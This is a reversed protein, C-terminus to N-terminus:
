RRDRRPNQIIRGTIGGGSGSATLAIASPAADGAGYLPSVWYEVVEGQRARRAVENEFRAMSSRNTRRDLAVMEQTNRARGGLQRAILHARDQMYLNGNGLWGAPDVSNNVRQGTGLMSSTITANAGSAQGNANAPGYRIPDRPESSTPPQIRPPQAPPRARAGFPAAATLTTDVAGGAIMSRNRAEPSVGLLTAIGYGVGALPARAIYHAERIAAQQDALQAPSVFPNSIPVLVCARGNNVERYWQGGIKLFPSPTSRQLRLQETLPYTRLAAAAAGRGSNQRAPVRSNAGNQRESM